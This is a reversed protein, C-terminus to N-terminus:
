FLLFMWNALKVEFNKERTSRFRIKKKAIIRFDLFRVKIWIRERFCLGLNFSETMGEIDSCSTIRNFNLVLINRFRKLQGKINTNFCQQM